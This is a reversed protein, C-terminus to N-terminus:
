EVATVTVYVSAGLDFGIELVATQGAVTLTTALYADKDLTLTTTVLTYDTDLVLLTGASDRIWMIGTASNFTVTLAIDAPTSLDYDATTASLDAVDAQADEILLSLSLKTIGRSFSLTADDVMYGVAAVDLPGTLYIFSGKKPCTISGTSKIMVDGSM